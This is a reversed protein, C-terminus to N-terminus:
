LHTMSETMYNEIQSWCVQDMTQGALWAKQWEITAILAQRISWHPMWGLQHRSQSTDLKLTGAEHPEQTMVDTNVQAGEGWLESMMEAVDAVTAEDTPNPGFNWGKSYIQPNEILREALLLYGILPELVHQWPRIARPYRLTVPQGKEFARLCDPVLRDVAWDGGGIVNGARATAIGIERNKFFSQYYSSTVLEAAAKSASYPDYGGLSDIERYAYFWERNEYVKDTTIIVVCKVSDITRLAELIHATGMINTDFTEIPSIYSKRVLPQAALHFIIEPKDRSIASQIDLFNRIDGRHDVELFQKVNAVEFLSLTSPPSLSYGFVKAGLQHLWLTLWSGKIGNHGTIFVPKDQWISKTLM